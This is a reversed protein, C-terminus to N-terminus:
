IGNGETLQAKSTYMRNQKVQRVIAPGPCVTRSVPMIPELIKWPLHELM